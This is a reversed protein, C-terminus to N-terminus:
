APRRDRDGVDVARSAAVGEVGAIDDAQQFPAGLDIAQLEGAGDARAADPGDARGFTDEGSLSASAKTLRWSSPRRAARRFVDAAILYGPDGRGALRGDVAAPRHARPPDGGQGRPRPYTSGSRDTRRRDDSRPAARSEDVKVRFQGYLRHRDGLPLDAREALRAVPGPANRGGALGIESEVARVDERNAVIVDFLGAAAAEFLDPLDRGTVRLGLDATHEFTEAHGM